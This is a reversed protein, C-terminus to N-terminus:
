DLGNEEKWRQLYLEPSRPGKPDVYQGFGWTRKMNNTVFPTLQAYTDADTTEEYKANGIYSLFCGVKFTSLGAPVVYTRVKPWEIVYGGYKTHRGMSGTGTGKYYGKNVNKTTLRLKRWRRGFLVETARM